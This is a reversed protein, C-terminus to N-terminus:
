HQSNFDPYEWITGQGTGNLIRLRPGDHGEAWREYFLHDALGDNNFDACAWDITQANDGHDEQQFLVEGSSSSVVTRQGPMDPQGKVFLIEKTEDGDVDDVLTITNADLWYGSDTGNSDFLKDGGPQFDLDLASTGQSEALIICNDGAAMLDDYGDGSVDGLIQYQINGWMDGNKTLTSELDEYNPNNDPDNFLNRYNHSEYTRTWLLDGAISLIFFNRECGVIIVPETALCSNEMIGLSAIRKNILGGDSTDPNEPNKGTYQTYLEHYYDSTVVTQELLVSGDNGSIAIIRSNEGYPDKSSTSSQIHGIIDTYNDGNLDVTTQIDCIGGTLAFENYTMEYPSWAAQETAGDIVYLCRTGYSQSQSQRQKSYILLDLTEDGTFNSRQMAVGTIRPYNWEVTASSDQASLLLLDQEDSVLLFENEAVEKVRFMDYRTSQSALNLSISGLDDGEVLSLLAMDGSTVNPVLLVTQGGLSMTEIRAICSLDLATLEGRNEWITTETAPDVLFLGSTASQYGNQGGSQSTAGAGLYTAAIIEPTGDGSIDEVKSLQLNFFSNNRPGTPYKQNQMYYAYLSSAVYDIFTDSEWDMGGDGLNIIRVKGDEASVIIKHFGDIEIPIIDWVSRDITGYEDGSDDYVTCEEVITKKWIRKGTKGSVLHISGDQSGVAVESISDGDIDSVAVARWLNADTTYEWIMDGGQGCSLMYLSYGSTVVVEPCNDGDIDTTSAIDFSPTQIDTWLIEEDFLETTPSYTWLNEGGSSYCRVNAFCTNDTIVVIDNRSDGNLDNTTIIKTVGAPTSIFTHLSDEQLYLIYIGKSTGLIICDDEGDALKTVTIDTEIDGTLGVQVLSVSPHSNTVDEAPNLVDSQIITVLPE